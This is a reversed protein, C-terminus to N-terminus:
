SYGLSRIAGALATQVRKQETTTLENRWRGTEGSQIHRDVIHNTPDERLTRHRNPIERVDEATGDSVAEMVKRHATMSTANTIKTVQADTVPLHLHAAVKRVLADADPVDDEYRLLLADPMDRIMALHSQTLGNLYPLLTDLPDEHLRRLSVCIDRPDRRHTIATVFPRAEAVAQAVEDNWGHMHIILVRWRHLGRAMYKRMHPAIQDANLNVSRHHIGSQSFLNRIISNVLVTGSRPMGANLVIM